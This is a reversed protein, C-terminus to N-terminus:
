KNMTVETFHDKVVQTTQNILEAEAYNNDIFKIYMNGHKLQGGYSAGYSVIDAETIESTYGYSGEVYPKAYETPEQEILAFIFRRLMSPHAVAFALKDVDLFDQFNKLTLTYRLQLGGHDVQWVLIVEINYGSLEMSNVLSAILSGRQYITEIKVHCNCCANVIIRQLKQGKAEQPKDENPSFDLMCEPDGMIYADINIISGSVDAKLDSGFDQQPFFKAWHTNYEKTYKDIMKRGEEWGNQAVSLCDVMSATGTFYASGNKSELQSPRLCEAPEGNVVQTILSNLSNYHTHKLKLNSM